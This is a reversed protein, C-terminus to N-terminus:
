FGLRMLSIGPFVAFVVTLPLIGFVLPVMMQIEKRGAAEMLERRGMERVDQAQARLVDALPTGRDLAILVGAIFREVPALQIRRGMAKLAVALSAGARMDALATAFERALEGRATTAVRELAGTTSEGASVSLAFLEAVSPFETLISTRRRTITWGLAQDRLVYGGLGAAVVLAAATFVPVAGSVALGLAAATGAAVGLCAWLVQQARYDVPTLPSGAAELRRSLTEGAPSLNQLLRTVAGLPPGLLRGWAGWPSTAATEGDLLRSAPVHHRLQPELRQELTPRWGLPQALVILWLGVGLLTGLGLGVALAASM